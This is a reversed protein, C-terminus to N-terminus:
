LSRDFSSPTVILVKRNRGYFGYEGSLSTKSKRQMIHFFIKSTLFNISDSVGCYKAIRFRGIDLGDLFFFKWDKTFVLASDGPLWSENKLVKFSETKLIQYIKSWQTTSRSNTSRYHTNSRPTKKLFLCLCIGMTSSLIKEHSYKKIYHRSQEYNPKWCTRLM